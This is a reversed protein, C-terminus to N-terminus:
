TISNMASVMNNFYSAYIDSGSIVTGPITNGGTFYASLANLANRAANFVVASFNGGSVVADIPYNGMGKYVRFANIRSTFSNWESAGVVFNGGSVKPYTWSFNLPRASADTTVNITSSNATYGSKVVYCYFSYTVGPTLGGVLLYDGTRDYSYGSASIDVGNIKTGLSGGSDNNHTVVQIWTSSKTDFSISPAVVATHGTCTGAPYWVNNFSAEATFSYDTGSTLGPFTRSTSASTNWLGSGIKHRFGDYDGVPFDLGSINVTISNTTFGTVSLIPM